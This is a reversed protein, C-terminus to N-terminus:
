KGSKFGISTQGDKLVVYMRRWPNGDLIRWRHGTGTTDTALLIDGPKITFKEGGKMEFELVGSLTIVYQPTPDNHWEFEGGIATERFSATKVDTAGSLIDGRQSLPMDIYGDEFHSNGDPGSFLRVCRIM